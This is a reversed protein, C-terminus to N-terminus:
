ELISLNSYTYYALRPTRYIDVIGWWEENMNPDLYAGNSWSSETDHVYASGGNHKWWEDNFSFLMGGSCVGNETVSANTLIEQTLSSVIESQTNQDEQNTQGNYADCGYEALYM